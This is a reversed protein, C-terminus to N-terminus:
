LYMNKTQIISTSETQQQGTLILATVDQLNINFVAQREQERIYNRILSKLNDFEQETLGLHVAGNDALPLIIVRKLGKQRNIAAYHAADISDLSQLYSKLHRLSGFHIQTHGIELHIRSCTNCTFIRM